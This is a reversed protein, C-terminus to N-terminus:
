VFSYPPWPGLLSCEETPAQRRLIDALQRFAECRGRQVLFAIRVVGPERGTLGCQDRYIGTLGQVYRDAVQRAAAQSRDTRDYRERRAALYQGPSLSCPAQATAMAPEAPEALPPLEIRLGMECTGRLRALSDLLESRRRRLFERVACADALLVGFRVPLIDIRRHIAELMAAHAVPDHRSPPLAVAAALDEHDIWSIGHPDHHKPAEPISAERRESTTHHSM